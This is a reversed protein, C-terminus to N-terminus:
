PRPPFISKHPMLCPQTATSKRDRKWRRSVGGMIMKYLLCLPSVTVNKINTCYRALWYNYHVGHDHDEPASSTTGESYRQALRLFLADYPHRMLSRPVHFCVRRDRLTSPRTYSKFENLPSSTFFGYQVLRAVSQVLPGIASIKSICTRTSRIPCV